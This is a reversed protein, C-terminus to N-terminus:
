PLDHSQTCISCLCHVFKSVVIDSSESCNRYSNVPVIFSMICSNDEM